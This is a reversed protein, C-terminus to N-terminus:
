ADQSETMGDGMVTSERSALANCFCQFGDGSAPVHRPIYGLASISLMMERLSIHPAGTGGYSREFSMAPHSLEAKMRGLQFISSTRIGLVCDSLVLRSVESIVLKELYFRGVRPVLLLPGSTALEASSHGFDSFLKGQRLNTTHVFPVDGHRQSLPVSNKVRGRVVEVCRCQLLKHSSRLLSSGNVAQTILCEGQIRRRLSVLVSSATVDPFSGRPLGRVISVEYQQRIAGWLDADIQGRLAGEPLVAAVGLRPRVHDISIALAAMAPTASYVAGFFSIFRRQRGRYSFPPNILIVDVNQRSTRWVRSSRRSRESYIDARGVSWTSMARSVQRVTVADIDAGIIDLGSVASEAAKLLSGAGMAPDFIRMGPTLGFISCVEDALWEPSYFKDM